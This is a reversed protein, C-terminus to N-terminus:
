PHRRGGTADRNRPAAGGISIVNTPSASPFREALKTAYEDVYEQGTLDRIEFMVEDTIQRLM